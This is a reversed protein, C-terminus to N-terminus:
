EFQVWDPCGDTVFRTTVETIFVTGGQNEAVVAEDQYLTWTCGDPQTDPLEYGGLAIDDPVVYDGTGAITAGSFGGDDGGEDQTGADEETTSTDTPATPACAALGSALLLVLLVSSATRSTTM